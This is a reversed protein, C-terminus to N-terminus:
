THFQEQIASLNNLLVTKTSTLIASVDTETLDDPINVGSTDTNSEDFIKVNLFTSLKETYSDVPTVLEETALKKLSKHIEERTRPINQDSWFTSISLLLDEDNMLLGMLDYIVRFNDPMAM